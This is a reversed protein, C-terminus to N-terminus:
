FTVNKGRGKKTYETYSKEFDVVDVYHHAVRKEVPPLTMYDGYVNTLWKDYESPVRAKIGEFELICGEGYWEAPVIEKKGWAGSYSAIFADKKVSKYLKERLGIVTRYSPYIACLLKRLVKTRFSPKTGPLYFVASIRMTLITKIFDVKKQKLKSSPYYDLPFVDIYVGHNMDCNKASTELFTTNSNRIKAFNTPLGPDNHFSQIFCWEPMLAQGEKLFREYDERPMGVDIDDDWPIFGKHRVAGLLTGEVLYYTLNLKECVSIFYKFLELETEKLQQLQKESLEM